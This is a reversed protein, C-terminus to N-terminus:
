RNSVLLFKTQAARKEIRKEKMEERKEVTSKVGQNRKSTEHFFFFSRVVIDLRGGISSERGFEREIKVSIKKRRWSDTYGVSYVHIYM